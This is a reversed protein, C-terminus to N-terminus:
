CAENGVESVLGFAFLVLLLDEDNVIGDGNLDAPGGAEGFAFLVALLDDDNVTGDGNVDGNTLMVTGLDVNGTVNVNSIRKGLWSFPGEMTLNTITFADFECNFYFTSPSYVPRIVVDYTGAKVNPTNFPFSSANGAPMSFRAVRRNTGPKYFLVEVTSAVTGTPSGLWDAFMATGSVNGTAANTDRLWAKVKYNQPSHYTRWKLPSPDAPNGFPDSMRGPLEFNMTQNNPFSAGNFRWLQWTGNLQSRAAYHLAGNGGPAGAALAVYSELPSGVEEGYVLLFYTGAPLTVTSGLPFTSMSSFGAAGGYYTVIPNDNMQVDFIDYDGEFKVDNRNPVSNGGGDTTAGLVKVYLRPFGTIFEIDVSLANFSTQECLDLRVSTHRDFLTQGSALKGSILYTYTATLTPAACTGGLTFLYNASMGNANVVASSNIDQASVMQLGAALALGLAVRKM